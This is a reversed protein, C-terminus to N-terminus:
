DHAFSIRDAVESNNPPQENGMRFELALRWPNPDNGLEVLKARVKDRVADPLNKIMSDLSTALPGDGRHGAQALVALMWSYGYPVPIEGGTEVADGVVDVRVGKAPDLDQA